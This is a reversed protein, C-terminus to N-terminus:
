APNSGVIEAELRKLGVGWVACDRPSAILVSLGKYSFTVPFYFIIYMRREMTQM